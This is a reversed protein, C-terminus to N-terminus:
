KSPALGEFFPPPAWTTLILCKIKHYWSIFTIEQFKPSFTNEGKQHYYGNRLFNSKTLALLFQMWAERPRKDCSWAEQPRRLSAPSTGPVVGEKFIINLLLHDKLLGRDEHTKALHMTQRSFISNACRYIVESYMNTM